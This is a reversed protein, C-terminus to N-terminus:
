QILAYHKNTQAHLTISHSYTLHTNTYTNQVYNHVDRHICEQKILFQTAMPLLEIIISSICSTKTYKHTRVNTCAHTYTNTTHTKLEHSCTCEHTQKHLLVCKHM